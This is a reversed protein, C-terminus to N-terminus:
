FYIGKLYLKLHQAIGFKGSSQPLPNRVLLCLSEM